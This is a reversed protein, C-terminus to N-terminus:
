LMVDEDDDDSDGGCRKMGEEEGCMMVDGDSTVVM